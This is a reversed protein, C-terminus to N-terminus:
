FWSTRSNILMTSTLTQVNLNKREGELLENEGAYFPGEEKPVFKIIEIYLRLNWIQLM